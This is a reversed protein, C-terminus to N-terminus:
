VFLKLLHSHHITPQAGFVQQLQPLPIYKGCRIIIFGILHWQHEVKVPGLALENM